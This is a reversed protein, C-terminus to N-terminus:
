RAPLRSKHRALVESLRTVPKNVGTYDPLAKPKPAWDITVKRDQALAPLGLLAIAWAIKLVKM